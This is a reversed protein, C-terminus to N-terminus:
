PLSRDKNNQLAVAGANGDVFVVQIVRRGSGAPPGYVINDRVTVAIPLDGKQGSVHIGTRVPRVISNGQIVLNRSDIREAATNWLRQSSQGGPATSIFMGVDGPDTIVNAVIQLDQVVNSTAIGWTQPSVITNSRITVDRCGEVFIGGNNSVPRGSGTRIITNGTVAIHEGITAGEAGFDASAIRIGSMPTNEIRCDVVSIDRAGIVAIGSGTKRVDIITTNRVRCHAVAGYRGYGHSVFAVGDDGPREIRCDHIAIRQSGRQAHIGDAMTDHVYCTDVVINKSDLFMMGTSSSGYIEVQQILCRSVGAAFITGYLGTRGSVDFEEFCLNRVTAGNSLHLKVNDASRNSKFRIRAGPGAGFLLQGPRLFVDSALVLMSGAPISVAKGTALARDLVATDDAQGIPGYDTVSVVDDNQRLVSSAKCDATGITAVVAISAVRGAIAFFDRRSQHVPQFRFNTYNEM